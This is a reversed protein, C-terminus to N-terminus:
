GFLLLCTLDLTCLKPSLGFEFAINIQYTCNRTRKCSVSDTWELLLPKITEFYDGRKWETASRYHLM